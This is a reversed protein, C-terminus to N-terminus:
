TAFAGTDQVPQFLGRDFMWPSDGAIREVVRDLAPRWDAFRLSELWEQLKDEPIQRATACVVLMGAAHNQFRERQPHQQGRSQALAVAAVAVALADEGAPELKQFLAAATL